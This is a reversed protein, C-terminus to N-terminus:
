IEVRTMELQRKYSDSTTRQHSWHSDIRSTIMGFRKAGKVTHIQKGTKNIEERYETTVPEKNKGADAQTKYSPQSDQVKRQHDYYKERQQNWDQKYGMSLLKGFIVPEDSEKMISKQKQTLSDRRAALAKNMQDVESKKNKKAFRKSHPVDEPLNVTKNTVSDGDRKFASIGDQLSYPPRRVPPRRDGMSDENPNSSDYGEHVMYDPLYVKRPSTNEEQEEVQHDFWDVRPYAKPGDPKPPPTRISLLDKRGGMKALRVYKSDTERLWGRKMGGDDRDPTIILEGGILPIQSAAPYDVAAQKSDKKAPAHYFWDQTGSNGAM